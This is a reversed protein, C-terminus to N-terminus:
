FIIKKIKAVDDKGFGYKDSIIDFYYESKMRTKGKYPHEIVVELKQGKFNNKYDSELKENLLRLNKARRAITGQEVQDPMSYAPTKKHASFSFVHLRSFNIKEVFKKTIEFDEDNEGPFGVIVDTTIAIELVKERIEKIRNKFHGTNYPRKMKNLIKDCGSQLPIHLHKCLKNNIMLDILDDGIENLEISSLRVRGIDKIKLIDSVLNILKYDSDYGYLGLHIGSLVIERFGKKIAGEIETIIEKKNRSQLPGRAYPIICYSCFQECGDQVKIFYRARAQETVLSAQGTIDILNDNKNFIFNWLFSFDDSDAIFDVGFNKKKIDSVRPWCGALIIKANRNEKRAKSIMQKNKKVAKGTVSCSYVIAIDAKDSTKKLGQKKFSAELKTADYQNVKCGLSYIKYTM